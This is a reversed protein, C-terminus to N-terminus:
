ERLCDEENLLKPLDGTITEVVDAYDVFFADFNFKEDGSMEENIMATVLENKWIEAFIDGALILAEKEEKNLIIRPKTEIIM